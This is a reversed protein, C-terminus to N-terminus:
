QDSPEGPPTIDLDVPLVEALQREIEKRIRDQEAAEVLDQLSLVM